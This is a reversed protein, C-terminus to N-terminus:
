VRWNKISIKRSNESVYEIDILALVDDFYERQEKIHDIWEIFMVTEADGLAELFGTGLLEDTNYIRYLDTHIIRKGSKEFENMITFSPSTVDVGPMLVSMIGKILLTKGAGLEGSLGVKFGKGIKSIEKGLTQGFKFTEDSSNTIIVRDPM